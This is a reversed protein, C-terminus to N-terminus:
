HSCRRSAVVRRRQGLIYVENRLNEQRDSSLWSQWEGYSFDDCVNGEMRGHKLNGRSVMTYGLRGRAATVPRPKSLGTDMGCNTGLMYTSMHRIHGENKTM